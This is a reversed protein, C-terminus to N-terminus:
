HGKTKTASTSFVIIIQCLLSLLLRDQHSLTRFSMENTSLDNSPHRTGVERSYLRGAFMTEDSCSVPYFITLTSSLDVAGSERDLSINNRVVTATKM